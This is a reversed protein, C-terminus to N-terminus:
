RQTEETPLKPALTAAVLAALAERHREVHSIVDSLDSRNSPSNSMTAIPWSTAPDCATRLNNLDAPSRVQVAAHIPRGPVVDNAGTSFSAAAVAGSDRSLYLKFAVDAGGQVSTTASLLLAGEFVLPRSGDRRLRIASCPLSCRSAESQNLSRVAPTQDSSAALTTEIPRDPLLTESESPPKAKPPFHQRPVTDFSGVADARRNNSSGSLRDSGRKWAAFLARLEPAIRVDCSIAGDEVDRSHPVHVGVTM